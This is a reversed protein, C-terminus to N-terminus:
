NMIATNKKFQSKVLIKHVPKVPIFYLKGGLNNFKVITTLYIKSKERDVFVSTRFKLHKDNEEMVIENENRASVTFIMLKSGTPYYDQEQAENGPVALGFLRAISNRIKMLVAGVGSMRLIEAAIKDVSLDTSKFIMYSDFYDVKGFGELIVSKSPIEKLSVVKSLKNKKNM